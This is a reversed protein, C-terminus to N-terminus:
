MRIYSKLTPYYEIVIYFCVLYKLFLLIIETYDDCQSLTESHQVYENKRLSWVSGFHDSQM